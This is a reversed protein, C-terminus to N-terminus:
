GEHGCPPPLPLTFPLPNDPDVFARPFHARCETAFYPSLLALLSFVMILLHHFFFMRGQRLQPDRANLECSGNTLRDLNLEWARCVMWVQVPIRRYLACTLFNRTELIQGFGERNPCLGDGFRLHEDYKGFM